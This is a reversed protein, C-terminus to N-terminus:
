IDLDIGGAVDCTSAVQGAPQSVRWIAPQQSGATWRPSRATTRSGCTSLQRCAVPSCRYCSLHSAAPAATVIPRPRMALAARGFRAYHLVEELDREDGQGAGHTPIRLYRGYSISRIMLRVM